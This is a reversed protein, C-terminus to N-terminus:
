EGVGRDGVPNRDGGLWGRRVSPDFALRWLNMYTRAVDGGSIEALREAISPELPIEEQAPRLAPRGERSRDPAPEGSEGKAAFALFIGRDGSKPALVVGDARVDALRWTEREGPIRELTEGQVYVKDNIIAARQKGRVLTAGLTLGQPARPVSPEKPATKQAAPKSPRVRGIEPRPEAFKEARVSRAPSEPRPEYSSRMFPNRKSAPKFGPSLLRPDLSPPETRRPVSPATPSLYPWVCWAAAALFVVLPALRSHTGM